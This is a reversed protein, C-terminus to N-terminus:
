QCHIQHATWIGYFIDVFLHLKLSYFEISQNTLEACKIGHVFRAFQKNINPVIGGVICTSYFGYWKEFLQVADLLCVIQNQVRGILTQISIHQATTPFQQVLELRNSDNGQWVKHKVTQIADVEHSSYEWDRFLIRTSM